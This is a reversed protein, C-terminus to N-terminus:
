AAGGEGQGEGAPATGAATAPAAVAAPPDAAAQQQPPNQQQAEALAQVRQLCAELVWLRLMQLRCARAAGAARKAEDAQAQLASAREPNVLATGAQQPTLTAPAPDIAEDALEGLLDVWAALDAFEPADRGRDIGRRRDASYPLANAAMTDALVQRYKQQQEPTALEEVTRAGPHDRHTIKFGAGVTYVGNDGSAAGFMSRRTNVSLSLTGGLFNGIIQALRAVSYGPDMEPDRVGLLDAAQLFALVSEPGGNWHLYIAPADHNDGFAIVARNGM